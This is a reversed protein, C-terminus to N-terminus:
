GLGGGPLSVLTGAPGTLTWPEYDLSPEVAVTREGSLEILLSGDELAVAGIVTARFISALIGMGQPSQGTAPSFSVESPEGKELVSFPVEIRLNSRQDEGFLLQITGDLVIATISSGILEPIEMDEGRTKSTLPSIMESIVPRFRSTLRVKVSAAAEWPYARPTSLSEMLTTVMPDVSLFQGTTPDYYRHVLQEGPRVLLQTAMSPWSLQRYRDVRTDMQVPCSTGSHATRGSSLGGWLSVGSRYRHTPEGVM